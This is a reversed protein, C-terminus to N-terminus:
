KRSMVKLNTKDLRATLTCSSAGSKGCETGHVKVELVTRGSRKRLRLGQSYMTAAKRFEGNPLAAYISMQCGATGCFYNHAGDCVVYQYDILADPRADDNLDMMEITGPFFEVSKCDASLEARVEGLVDKTDAAVSPSSLTLFSFIGAVILNRM